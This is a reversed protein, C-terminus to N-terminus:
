ELKFAPFTSAGSRRATRPLTSPERGTPRPCQARGNVHCTCLNSLAESFMGLVSGRSSVVAELDDQFVLLLFPGLTSDLDHM